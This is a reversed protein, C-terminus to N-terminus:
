RVNQPTSDAMRLKESHNQLIGSPELTNELTRYNESTEENTKLSVSIKKLNILRERINQFTTLRREWTNQFNANVSTRANVSTDQPTGLLELAM